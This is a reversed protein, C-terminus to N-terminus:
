SEREAVGPLLAVRVSCNKLSDKERTRLDSIRSSNLDIISYVRNAQPLELRQNSFDVKFLAFIAFVGLGGM